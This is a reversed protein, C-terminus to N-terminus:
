IPSRKTKNRHCRLTRRKRWRGPWVVRLIERGAPKPQGAVPGHQM